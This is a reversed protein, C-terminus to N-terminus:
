DVEQELGPDDVKINKFDTHLKEEFRRHHNLFRDFYDVEKNKSSLFKDFTKIAVKNPVMNETCRDTAPEPFNCEKLIPSIYKIWYATDIKSLPIFLFDGFRVGNDEEKGGLSLLLPFTQETLQKDFICYEALARDLEKGSLFIEELEKNRALLAYAKALSHSKTQM